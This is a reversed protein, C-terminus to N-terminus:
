ILRLASVFLLHPRTPALAAENQDLVTGSLGLDRIQGHLGSISATTPTGLGITETLRGGHSQSIKWSSELTSTEGCVRLPEKERQGINLNGM